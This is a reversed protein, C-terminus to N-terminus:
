KNYGYEKGYGYKYDNTLETDNLVIYMNKLKQEYYQMNIFNIAAKPTKGERVVYLVLDTYKAILQSDSVLGVPASDIIIYDYEVQALQILEGLKPSLLLENPNPPISGAVMVQLNEHGTYTVLFDKWTYSSSVLYDTLGNNRKISKLGMYEHLKPKRIDGGILLVKKDTSAFSLALNISVFTKGEEATTSTTMIVLGSPKTSLFAINNRLSRFMEVLVDNVKGVVITDNTKNHAIEGVVTVDSLRELESRKGIKTQFLGKVYIVIIPILVGLIGFTLFIIKTKPAIPSINKQASNVVRAKNSTAAISLNTEERKQMLFVFLNEKIKQERVKEILGKEQKPVSRIRSSNVQGRQILEDRSVQYTQRVNALSSSIGDRINKLEELVRVRAPNEEGTGKILQNSALLKNNYESIIQSLGIDSVGMNPIIDTNNNVNSIFNQILTLINLQTEIELIKQENESTQAVFLQAESSLDTINHQQKYEVVNEEADSLELSIEKLRENVFVGTNYAIENNLRLNLDNYQYVLENLIDIGKQTNYVMLALNIVSSKQSSSIVSLNSTLYVTTADIDNIEVYYAEDINGGRDSLNIILSTNDDIAITAPLKDLKEKIAFKEKDKTYEGEITYTDNVKQIKIEIKGRFTDANTGLDVIYPSSKYVETKRFRRETFYSINAKQTKVVTRMLDTSGLIIIENEINNTTSLLGISELNIMDTSASKGNKDENLLISLSPKYQKPSVMIIATAISLAVFISGIFWKWYKVYEFVIEILM